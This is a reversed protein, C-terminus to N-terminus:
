HEGGDNISAFLRFQGTQASAGNVYKLRTVPALVQVPGITKKGSAVVIEESVIDYHNGGDFSQEVFAKGSQNAYASGTFTINAGEVQSFFPGLFIEENEKLLPFNKISYETDYAGFRMEVKICVNAEYYIFYLPSEPIYSNHISKREM